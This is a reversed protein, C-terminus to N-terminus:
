CNIGIFISKDLVSSLIEVYSGLYQEPVAAKPFDDCATVVTTRYFLIKFDYGTTRYDGFYTSIKFTNVIVAHGEKLRDKFKDVHKDEM